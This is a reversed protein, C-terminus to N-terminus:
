LLTVAGYALLIGLPVVALAVPRSRTWLRQGLFVSLGLMLVAFAVGPSLDGTGLLVVQYVVGSLWLTDLLRRRWSHRLRWRALGLLGFLVIWAGHLALPSPLDPLNEDYSWGQFLAVLDDVFAGAAFALITFVPGQGFSTQGARRLEVAGTALVGLMSVAVAPHLGYLIDAEGRVVKLPDIRTGFRYWLYEYGLTLLGAALSLGLLVPWTRDRGAPLARWLMLWTFVGLAVQAQSVDLKSQLLYHVLGLVAIGYVVRHLRKWAKGIAWIWGDTSTLGLVVLGLLAVFGLTLYFRQLIESVIASLRWNQETAYLTLHLLAYCLAANGIMRRVVVVNPIATLAKAPTVVLSAILLWITWYGTSHVAAHVPEPGLAHTVGRWALWAAPGLLLAFVVGRLPNFRGRRDTWPVLEARSPALTLLPIM